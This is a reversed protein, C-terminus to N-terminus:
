HLPHPAEISSEMSFLRQGMLLAKPAAATLSSEFTLLM